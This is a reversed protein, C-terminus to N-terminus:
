SLYNKKTRKGSFFRFFHTHSSYNKKEYESFLLFMKSGSFLNQKKELESVNTLQTFFIQNKTKKIRWMHCTLLTTYDHLM